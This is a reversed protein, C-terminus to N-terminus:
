RTRQERRGSAQYQPSVPTTFDMKGRLSDGYARLLIQSMPQLNTQTPSQAYTTMCIFECKLLDNMIPQKAM